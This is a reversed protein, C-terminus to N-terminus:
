KTQIAKQEVNEKGWPSHKLITIAIMTYLCWSKKQWNRFRMLFHNEILFGFDRSGLCNSGFKSCQKLCFSSIFCNRSKQGQLAYPVFHCLFLSHGVQEDTHCSNPKSLLYISQDWDWTFMTLNVRAVIDTTLKTKTGTFSLYSCSSMNKECGLLMHHCPTWVCHSAIYWQSYNGSHLVQWLWSFVNSIHSCLQIFQIHTGQSSLVAQFFGM